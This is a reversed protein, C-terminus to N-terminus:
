GRNEGVAAHSEAFPWSSFKELFLVRANHIVEPAIDRRVDQELRQIEDSPLFGSLAPPASRSRLGARGQRM